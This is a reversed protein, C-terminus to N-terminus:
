KASVSHYAALLTWLPLPTISSIETYDVTLEEPIAGLSTCVHYKRKIQCINRQDSLSYDTVLVIFKGPLFKKEQLQWELSVLSVGDM